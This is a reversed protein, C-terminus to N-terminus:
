NITGVVVVDAAIALTAPSVEPSLVVVNVVDPPPITVVESCGVGTDVACPSLAAGGGGGSSRFSNVPVESTLEKMLSSSLMAAAAAAATAAVSGGTEAAWGTATGSTCGGCGGGDVPPLPIEAAAAAGM